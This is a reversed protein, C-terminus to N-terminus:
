DSKSNTRVLKKEPSNIDIVKGFDLQGQAIVEDFDVSFNDSM